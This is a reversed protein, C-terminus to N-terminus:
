HCQIAEPAFESTVMLYGSKHTMVADPRTQLLEQAMRGLFRAKDGIYNFLYIGGVEDRDVEVIDDKLRIDSMAAGAAQGTLQMLQGTVQPAAQAKGLIGSARAQGAFNQLNSINGATQAGFQGVSGAAAQGQGALQGLRGFQNELDQQAFGVGQQVLAERVNSGGLGGIASANRLLNKQGRERLFKQGSSEQLGAMAVQQAEPGDLGLMARQQGLADVGAQQSPAFDSRTLDFQRRNEAIGAQSGQVQASAADSAADEAADIGFPDQILGLSGIEIVDSAADAM